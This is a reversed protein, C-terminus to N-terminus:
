GQSWFQVFVENFLLFFILFLGTAQIIFMHRDYIVGRADDILLFSQESVISSDDNVITRHKYYLGCIMPEHFKWKMSYKWHLTTTKKILTLKDMESKTSFGAFESLWCSQFRAVMWSHWNISNVKFSFALREKGFM